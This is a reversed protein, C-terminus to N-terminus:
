SSLYKMCKLCVKGCHGGSENYPRCNEPRCKNDCVGSNATNRCQCPSFCTMVVIKMNQFLPIQLLMSSALFIISYFFPVAMVALIGNLILKGFNQLPEIFYCFIGIPFLVVGSLVLVYRLVLLILTVLLMAIYPLTLFFQLAINPLNDITLIFFNPDIINFIANTLGGSIQLAVSYLVFSAQVLIMMIITNALSRKASERQEPSYGAFLFKFGIFMLLLGYFISLIYVIISWISAFLNINVPETMLNHVWTLLPQLPANLVSLFFEFIKQPICSALNTIGCDDDARVVQPFLMLAIFFIVALYQKKM